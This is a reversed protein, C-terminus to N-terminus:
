RGTNANSAVLEASRGQAKAITAKVFLAARTPVCVCIDNMSRSPHARRAPSAIAAIVILAILSLTFLVFRSIPKM